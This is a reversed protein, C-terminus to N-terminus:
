NAHRAKRIKENGRIGIKIAVVGLLIIASFIIVRVMHFINIQSLGLSPPFALKIALIYTGRKMTKM